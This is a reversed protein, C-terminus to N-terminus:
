CRILQDQWVANIKRRSCWFSRDAREQMSRFSTNM